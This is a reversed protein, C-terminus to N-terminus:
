KSASQQIAKGILQVVQLGDPRNLQEGLYILKTNCRQTQKPDSGSKCKETAMKALMRISNSQSLLDKMLRERNENTTSAFDSEKSCLPSSDRFAPSENWDSDIFAQVAATKDGGQFTALIKEFPTENSTSKSKCGPQLTALMLAATFMVRPRHFCRM